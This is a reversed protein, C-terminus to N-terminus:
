SDFLNKNEKLWNATEPAAAFFNKNELFEGYLFALDNPTDVDYWVPIETPECGYIKRASAATQEFVKESSWEVNEFIGTASERLGILYYGGDKAAGLVIRTQKKRFLKIAAKIYDPPLTPSDTGIVIISDFNKDEGFKIASALREGLDNGEQKILVTGGPLLNGIENGGDAPTFAVIVNQSVSKTKAVTDKLFCIALEACQYDNLFPRLRTKVQGVRPVKAMVIIVPNFKNSNQNM